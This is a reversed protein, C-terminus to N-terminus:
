LCGVKMYTHFVGNVPLVLLVDWHGEILKSEVIRQSLAKKKEFTRKLCNWSYFSTAPKKKGTDFFGRSKGFFRRAMKPGITQAFGQFGVPGSSERPGPLSRTGTSGSLLQNTKKWLTGPEWQIWPLRKPWFFLPPHFRQWTPLRPMIGVRVKPFHDLNVVIKSIPQFWSSPYLQLFRKLPQFHKFFNYFKYAVIVKVKFVFAFVTWHNLKQYEWCTEDHHTITYNAVPLRPTM